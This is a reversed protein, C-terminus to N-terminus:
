GLLAASAQLADPLQGPTALHAGDLLEVLAALTRESDSRTV